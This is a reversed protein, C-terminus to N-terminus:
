TGKAIHHMALETQDFLGICEDIAEILLKKSRNFHSTIRPLNQIAIRFQAVIPRVNSLTLLMSETLNLLIAADSKYQDSGGTQRQLAVLSVVAQAFITFNQRAIASEKKLTSAREEIFTAYENIANKKEKASALSLKELESTQHNTAEGIEHIVESIRNVARTAAAVAEEGEEQIDLLGADDDGHTSVEAEQERAPPHTVQSLPTSHRAKNLYELIARQINVRVEQQLEDETKFVRYLVGQPELQRRFDEVRKLEDISISSASDIKDLFYAQVRYQGMPNATNAIAHEIEEVTGSLARGTPTGLKVGFVAVLIDYDRLLQKNIVDQAGTGIGPTVYEEWGMGRVSIRQTELARNLEYIGDFVARRSNLVDSPSAVVVRFEMIERPM